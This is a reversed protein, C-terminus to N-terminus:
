LSNLPAALHGYGPIYKRFYNVLGTFQEVEKINQLQYPWDSVLQVKRPDPKIGDVTLIHGLYPLEQRNFKCKHPLCYLKFRRFREFVAILHELHDEPTKSIILVDDLYILVFDNVYSELVEHMFQSFVAPANKAGFPMVTYEMLKYGCHFATREREAPLLPLQHYGAALDLSSMIRTGQVADILDDMRPIPAANTITMSNVARLDICCRLGQGEGKSAFTVPHAWPSQSEQCWGMNLMYDVQRTLEAREAPSLRYQGRKIPKAGPILPFVELGMDREPLIGIPLDQPFVDSFEQLVKKLRAHQVFEPGVPGLDVETM